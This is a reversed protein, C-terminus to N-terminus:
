WSKFSAVSSPLKSKIVITPAPWRHVWEGGPIPGVEDTSVESCLLPKQVWGINCLAEPPADAGGSASGAPRRIPIRYCRGCRRAAAAGRLFDWEVLLGCLRMTSHSCHKICQRPYAFLQDNQLGAIAVNRKKEPSAGAFAPRPAPKTTDQAAAGSGRRDAHDGLTGCTNDYKRSRTGSPDGCHQDRLCASNSRTGPPRVRVSTSPACCRSCDCRRLYSWAVAAPSPRRSSPAVSHSTAPTAPTAAEMGKPQAM